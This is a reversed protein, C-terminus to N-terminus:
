RVVRGYTETVGTDSIDLRRGAVIVDLVGSPLKAPTHYDALDRLTAPHLVTLDARCGVRIRGLQPQEVIDAPLSTIKRIAEEMTLAKQEVVYRRLFRPFTGFSRPHPLGGFADLPLAYGDSAVAANPLCVVTDVDDRSLCHNIIEAQGESSRAIVLVAEGPSIGLETAAEELSRRELERHAPAAALVIRQWADDGDREVEREVAAIIEKRLSGNMGGDMAAAYHDRPILTDIRTMTAEYPYVDVTVNPETQEILEIAQGVAGWSARGKAKLHSIHLRAEAKSSLELAERVSAVLDFSEERVHTTHLLQRDGIPALLAMLEEKSAFCGPAYLLGTSVGLVGQEVAEEVLRRMRVTDEKTAPETALAGLVVARVSGAGVLTGVNSAPPHQALHELYAGASHWGAAVTGYKSKPEIWYDPDPFASFGCNGVVETTVGQAIKSPAGADAVLSLDSHSHLDVFGPAVLADEPVDAAAPLDPADSLPEGGPGSVFVDEITGENVVIHGSFPPSGLGDYIWTSSLRTRRPKSV